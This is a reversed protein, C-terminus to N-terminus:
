ALRVAPRGAESCAHVSLKPILRRGQGTRISCHLVRIELCGGRQNEDGVIDGRVHLQQEILEVNEAKARDRRRVPRRRQRRAELVM